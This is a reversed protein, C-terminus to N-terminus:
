QAAGRAERRGFFSSIRHAARVNKEILWSTTDQRYVRHFFRPALPM